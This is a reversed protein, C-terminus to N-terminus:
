STRTNNHHSTTHHSTIYHLTNHHSTIHHSTNHHSTTHHSTIHHSINHHSTTHHITIHHSTHHTHLAPPVCRRVWGLLRGGRARAHTSSTRVEADLGAVSGGVCPCTNFLHTTTILHLASDGLFELRQNCPPTPWSCHKLAESLHSHQRFSYGLLVEPGRQTRPQLQPQTHNHHRPLSNGGPDHRSRPPVQPQLQIHTHHVPMCRGWPDTRPLERVREHPLLPLLEEFSSRDFLQLTTAMHCAGHLGGHVYAAGLLAEALDALRKGSCAQPPSPPPRTLWARAPAPRSPLHLSSLPPPQTDQVVCM